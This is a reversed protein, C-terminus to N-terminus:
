IWINLAVIVSHELGTVPVLEIPLRAAIGGALGASTSWPPGPEPQEAPERRGKSGSTQRITRNSWRPDPLLAGCALSGFMSREVLM